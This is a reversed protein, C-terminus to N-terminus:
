LEFISGPQDEVTFRTPTGHEQDFRVLASPLERGLAVQCRLGVRALAVRTRDLTERLAHEDAQWDLDRDRLGGAMSDVEGPNSKAIVSHRAAQDSAFSPNPDFSGSRRRM